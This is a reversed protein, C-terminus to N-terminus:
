RSTCRRGSSSDPHLPPPSVPRRPDTLLSFATSPLPPPDAPRQRPRPHTRPLDVAPSRRKSAGARFLRGIAIERADLRRRRRVQRGAETHFTHMVTREKLDDGSERVLNPNAYPATGRTAVVRAVPRPSSSGARGAGPAMTTGPARRPAPTAAPAAPARAVPRPAAARSTASMALPAGGARDLLSPRLLPLGSSWMVVSSCDALHAGDVFARAGHAVRRAATTSGEM